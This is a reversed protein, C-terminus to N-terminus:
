KEDFDFTRFMAILSHYLQNEQRIEPIM